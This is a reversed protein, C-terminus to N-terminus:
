IDIVNTRHREINFILIVILNQNTEDNSYLHNNIYFLKPEM